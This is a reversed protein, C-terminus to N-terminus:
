FVKVIRKWSALQKEHELDSLKSTVERQLWGWNELVTKKKISTVCDVRGHNCRDGTGAGM